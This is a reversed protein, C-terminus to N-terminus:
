NFVREREMRKLCQKITEGPKTDYGCTSVGGKWLGTGDSIEEDFEVNLTTKVLTSLPWWKRRWKRKEMSCKATVHQMGRIASRYSYTHAEVHGETKNVERRDEFDNILRWEGKRDKIWEGVFLWTVFPLRWTIWQRGSTVQGIEKDYKGGLHIWFTDSHVSFGYQPMDCGEPLKTRFPLHIYLRGWILCICIAYRQDFYGGRNIKFEFGWKPSFFGWDGSAKLM